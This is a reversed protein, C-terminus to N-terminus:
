APNYSKIDRSKLTLLISKRKNLNVFEVEFAEGKNYIHVVAGISGKKLNHKLIDRTLAVTDLEKFITSVKNVQHLEM